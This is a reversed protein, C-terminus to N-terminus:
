FKDFFINEPEVGLEDLMALVAEIMPPPGCLYYQCDEPAPHAQLYREYLIQHIFGVPYQRDQPRPESLAVQFSFNQHERALQEFLEAYFLEKLSRAGYWYSMKRQTRKRKLEDLIMSRLPAMGAGGGVFIMESESERVTFEGYPGSLKVRQGPKLSFVYSSVRGPPIEPRDPPPLALRVNLMAINGELPFNALSYSRTTPRDSHSTYRWFDFRDWDERFAEDIAFDRFRVTYPPAELLVYQGAKFRMPPAPLDLLLEKILPTVNRNSRVTAMWRRVGLVEQPVILKLDNKISVQCTLRYGQRILARGLKAIEPPLPPGAGELIIARCEGCIGKGGCASSLYIGQSALASLLKGGAPVELVREDNVVIKVKGSPVLMAQAILILTTLVVVLSVFIGVGLVIELRSNLWLEVLWSWAQSFKAEIALLATV